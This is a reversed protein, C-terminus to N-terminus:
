NLKIGISTLIGYIKCGVCYGFFAEIGTLLALVAGAIEAAPSINFIFLVTILLSFGFGLKAAFRKPGANIMCPEISFANLVYRLAICVPSKEVGLFLRVAFDLAVFIILWKAPTLIFLLLTTFIIGSNLRILNEDVRENVIPCTNKM